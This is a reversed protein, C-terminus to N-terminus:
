YYCMTLLPGNLIGRVYGKGPTVTKDPTELLQLPVSKKKKLPTPTANNVDSKQSETGSSSAPAQHNEKFSVESAHEGGSVVEMQESM